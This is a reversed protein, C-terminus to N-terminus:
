VRGKKQLDVKSRSRRKSRRTVLQALRRFKEQENERTGERRKADRFKGFEKQIHRSGTFYRECDEKREADSSKGGEVCDKREERTGEILKGRRM